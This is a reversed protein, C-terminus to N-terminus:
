CNSEIEPATCYVSVVGEIKLISGETDVIAWRVPDGHLELEKEITERIAATNGDVREIELEVLKLQLGKWERAEINKKATEKQVCASVNLRAARGMVRRNSADNDCIARPAKTPFAHLLPSNAFAVVM